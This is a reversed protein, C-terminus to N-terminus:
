LEILGHLRPGDKIAALHIKCYPINQKKCTDNPFYTINRIVQFRGKYGLHRVYKSRFGAYYSTSNENWFSKHSPDQFAGRGDTSPVEIFLLGGHKLCRWAENMTHIADPLHEIVDHARFVGVSDDPFNWLRSLDMKIDASHMDVSTWGAPKDIGGGLDFCGAGKKTWYALAMDEINRDHMEMTLRQIEANRQLWTNAGHVRYKYLCEPIFHFAGGSIKFLRAMLDLDDCVSLSAQHGGCAVYADMRWARVHDPAFWIRSVNQPLLEPREQVEVEEDTEGRFITKKTKWGYETSYPEMQGNKSVRCDESYVFVAGSEEFAKLVKELCDRSLEDDHDFEVCYKSTVYTCAERKLAGVHSLGVQTPVCIIRPDSSEEYVGGNFLVIWEWDPMTQRLMSERAKHYWEISNSPTIVSIKAM